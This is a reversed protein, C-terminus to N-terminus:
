SFIDIKNERINSNCGESIDAVGATVSFFIGLSSKEIDM